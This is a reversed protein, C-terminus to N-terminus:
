KSINTEYKKKIQLYRAYLINYRTCCESVKASLNDSLNYMYRCHRWSRNHVARSGYRYREGCRCVFCRSHRRNIKDKNKLRYVACSEKISRGAVYKNVCKNNQIHIGEFKKLQDRNDCPYDCILEIRYDNNELVKFSTTYQGACGRLYSRYKSVHGSLRNCLRSETTSGIYCLGTVNCVLKYIKGRQYKNESM